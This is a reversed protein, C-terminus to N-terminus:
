DVFTIYSFFVKYFFLSLIFFEEKQSSSALSFLFLVICHTIFAMLLIVFPRPVGLHTVQFGFTPYQVSSGTNIFCLSLTILLLLSTLFTLTSNITLNMKLMLLGLDIFIFCNGSLKYFFNYKWKTKYNLIAPFYFSLM